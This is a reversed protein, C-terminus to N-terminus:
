FKEGDEPLFSPLLYGLHPLFVTECIGREPSALEILYHVYFNLVYQVTM